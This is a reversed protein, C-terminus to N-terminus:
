AAGSSFSLGVGSSGFSYVTGGSLYVLSIGSTRFVLGLSNNPFATASAATLISFSTTNLSLVPQSIASANARDLSLGSLVTYGFLNGAM